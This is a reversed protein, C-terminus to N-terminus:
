TPTEPAGPTPPGAECAGPTRPGPELAGPELAAPTLPALLAEVEDFGTTVTTGARGRRCLDLPTRGQGDAAAPDAGHAVLRAVGAPRGHGAADRLPHGGFAEDVADVPTGAAVLRDIVDVREHTAAMVLARIRAEPPAAHLWAEVDGAAAAEEVGRIRAGAGVLVDVVDTMGFVAAHLLASGGPVGGSDVASCADLDAGADVLVRAVDADGYSAATILPTERDSPDGDVPAGHDVLLRALPGTGPVDRWVRGATDYRLMAVYGLPSAGRPHDCWHVLPRVAAAPDDRLLARLRDVDRADLIERRVVERELDPWGEFGYSRAVAQRADAVTPPGSARALRGTADPDGARAADLLDEAQRRLPELDPRVPLDPM